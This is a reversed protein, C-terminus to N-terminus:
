LQTQCEAPLPHVTVQSATQFLAAEAKRRRATQGALQMNIGHRGMVSLWLMEVINVSLKGENLRHILGSSQLERLGVTDSLSALAGIQNDTLKVNNSVISNVRRIAAILDNNLLELATEESIPIKGLEECKPRICRHGFGITPLGRVNQVINPSFPQFKKVLDVTAANAPPSCVPAADTNNTIDVDGCDAFDLNAFDDANGVNLSCDDKGSGVAEGDSSHNTNSLGDVSDSGVDDRGGNLNRSLGPPLASSQPILVNNDSCQKGLSSNHVPVTQVGSFLLVRTLVLLFASTRM